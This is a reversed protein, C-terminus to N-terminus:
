MLEGRLAMEKRLNDARDYLTEMYEVEAKKWVSDQEEPPLDYFEQNHERTAIEEAICHIRYKDM